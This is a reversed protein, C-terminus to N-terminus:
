CRASVKPCVLHCLVGAQGEKAGGGRGGHERSGRKEEGKM